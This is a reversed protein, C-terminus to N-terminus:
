FTGSNRVTWKIPLEARRETSLRMENGTQVGIGLEGDLEMGAKLESESIYHALTKDNLETEPEQNTDAQRRGDCVVNRQM